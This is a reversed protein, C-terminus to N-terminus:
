RTTRPSTERRKKGEGEEQQVVPTAEQPTWLALTDCLLQMFLLSDEHLDEQMSDCHANVAEFAARAVKCAEEPKLQVECLFGSYSVALGLRIPHAVALTSEAIAAVEAYAAEAYSAAKVKAEGTTVEALYRRYDAKMKLYFVKAEGGSAKPILTQELLGLVTSCVQQLEGAVKTSYERAWAAYGGHGKSMEDLEVSTIIRWADRRSAVAQKFAVSLLNREEVSLESGAKGVPEM